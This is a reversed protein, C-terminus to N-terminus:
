RGQSPFRPPTVHCGEVHENRALGPHCGGPMQAPMADGVRLDARHERGVGLADKADRLRSVLHRLTADRLTSMAPSDQIVGALCRRRCPMESACILAISTALGWRTKLTGSVPFSTAYRPM